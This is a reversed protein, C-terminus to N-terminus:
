NRSAPQKADHQVQPVDPSDSSTPRLPVPAQGPETTQSYALIRKDIRETNFISPPTFFVFALILAVILDYQWTGREYSWM